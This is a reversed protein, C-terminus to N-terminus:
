SQPPAPPPNMPTPSTGQQARRQEMRQREQELMADYKTKQDETLLARIKERSGDRLKMMQERKSPGTVTTDQRLAMMQAVGDKEIARVQTIQDPTLDLQRTMMALRREQMQEMTPRGMPMPPRPADGQQAPPPPPQSPDQARAAGAPLLGAAITLAMATVLNVKFKSFRSAATSFKMTM